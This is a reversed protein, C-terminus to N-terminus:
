RKATFKVVGSDCKTGDPFAETSRATGRLTGNAKFSIVYSTTFTFTGAFSGKAHARVVGNAPVKVLGLADYMVGGPQSAGSSGKCAYHFAFDQATGSGGPTFVCLSGAPGNRVCGSVTFRFPAHQSNTGRYTGQEVKVVGSSAGAPTAGAALAGTLLAAGVAMRLPTRTM